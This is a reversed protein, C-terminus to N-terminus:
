SLRTLLWAITNASGSNQNGQLNLGSVSVTMSTATKIPTYIATTLSSSLVGVCNYLAADGAGIGVTVLWTGLNVNPLTTLTVTAGNAANTFIGSLSKYTNAVVNGYPDISTWAFVGSQQFNTARILVAAADAAGNVIVQNGAPTGEITVKSKQALQINCQFTPPFGAFQCNKISAECWYSADSNLEIDWVTNREFWCTDFTINFATTQTSVPNATFARVCEQFVTNSLLFANCGQMEVGNTVTSFDCDIISNVFSYTLLDSTQAYFAGTGVIRTFICGEIALGYANDNVVCGVGVTANDFVCDRVLTNIAGNNHIIRSPSAAGDTFYLDRFIAQYFGFSPSCTVSFGNGTHDIIFRSGWGEGYMILGRGPVGTYLAVNIQSTLKYSGAPVYLAAGSALCADIAAQIAPADNTTGNGTAGFDKVSVTQRLKAQVTTAVAGGGAPQYGILSSGSSASLAAYISTPDNAGPVNDYTGITV